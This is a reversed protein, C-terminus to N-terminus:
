PQTFLLIYFLIFNATSAGTSTHQCLNRRRVLKGEQWSTEVIFYFYLKNNYSTNYPSDLTNYPSREGTIAWPKYGPNLPLANHV